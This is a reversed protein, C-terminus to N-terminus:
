KKANKRSRRRVAGLAGVGFVLGFVSETIPPMAGPAIQGCSASAQGTCSNGSCSGSASLQINLEASLQDLCSQVDPTTVYQGNCYLAGEPQSCQAQCGGTLSSECDASGQEQCKV